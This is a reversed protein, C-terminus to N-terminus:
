KLLVGKRVAKVGGSRIQYLYIGSSLSAANWTVTHAGASQFADVLTQVKQGNLNFVEVVVHGPKALEYAITTTPNFPNPYNQHLRFQAPIASEDEVSVVKSPGFQMDKFQWNEHLPWQDTKHPSPKGTIDVFESQGPPIINEDNFGEGLLEIAQQYTGRSTIQRPVDKLNEYTFSQIPGVFNEMALVRLTQHAPNGQAVAQAWAINDGNNWWSVPKNNWNVFYDQDNLDAKPLDEFPIFGGWEESGDGNHPLRPDVGDSRDQYKGVHWYKIKQDQGAYFVNFSLPNGAIAAEFDELTRGKAVRYFTVAMDLEQNWFTMKLSFAQRNGLDALFVPGHVTRYHTFPVSGTPTGIEEEIVEFDVFEGNFLYKSFSSDQTTEIYVDTNDSIGSTLTWAYHDNHGIIVMPVGAVTMGGVHLTPCNLEVENTINTQDPKPEGMQPAGLLMVNGTGSKAPSILVAFSGFKLPVGIEVSKARVQRRRQLLEPVVHTRIQLGSYRWTRAEATGGDHITTPVTPDNIPRNENFWEMGHEQLEALRILEDGGFQGFQRTLFQIIAISSYPTWPEVEHAFIHFDFPKYKAPNVAMSDLYTNIGASYAQLVNKLEDPLAEFHQRREEPTYYLTRIAQDMAMFSIGLWESLRGEAAHRLREMQVLRDQAVAFGQGFFVGTESEGTIHPVGFEDRDISVTTGDPALLELDEAEQGHGPAAAVMCWVLLVATTRLSDRM